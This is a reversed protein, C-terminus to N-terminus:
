FKSYQFSENCNVYMFRKFFGCFKIFNTNLQDYIAYVYMSVFILESEIASRYRLTENIKEVVCDFKKQDVELQYVTKEFVKKAKELCKKYVEFLVVFKNVERIQILPRYSYLNRQQVNVEFIEQMVKCANLKLYLVRDFGEQLYEKTNCIAM